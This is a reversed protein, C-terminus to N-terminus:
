DTTRALCCVLGPQPADIFLLDTVPTDPARVGAVHGQALELEISLPDLSMGEGTVKMRAEKATWFEFFKRQFARENLGDLVAREEPGFVRPTLGRVDVSRDVYELDIGVPGTWDSAFVAVDQTHSLSFNLESGSIEPKGNPGTPLVLRKSDTELLDGLAQRLLGRGRTFRHRDRDFVFRSARELEDGSLILRANALTIDRDDDLSWFRIDARVDAHAQKRAAGIM